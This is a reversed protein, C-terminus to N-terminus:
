TPEVEIRVREGELEAALAQRLREAVRAHARELSEDGFAQADRYLLRVRFSFEVMPRLERKVYDDFTEGERPLAARFAEVPCACAAHVLEAVAKYPRGERAKRQAEPDDGPGLAILTTMDGPKFPMKCYACPRGIAPHDPAMPGYVLNSM